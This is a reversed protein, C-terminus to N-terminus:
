PGGAVDQPGDAHGVCSVFAGCLVDDIGLRKMSTMADRPM